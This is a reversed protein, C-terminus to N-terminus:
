EVDRYAKHISFLGLFQNELQLELFIDVFHFFKKFGVEWGQPLWLRQSLGRGPSYLLISQPLIYVGSRTDRQKKGM